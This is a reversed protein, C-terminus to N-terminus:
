AGWAAHAWCWSRPRCSRHLKWWLSAWVQVCLLLLTSTFAVRPGPYRDLLLALLLTMASGGGSVRSPEGCVLPPHPLLTASKRRWGRVQPEGWLPCSTCTCTRTPWRCLLFPAHTCPPPPCSTFTLNARGILCTATWGPPTSPFSSSQTAPKTAESLLPKPTM